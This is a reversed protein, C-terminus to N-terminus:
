GANEECLAYFPLSRPNDKSRQNSERDCTYWERHFIPHGNAPHCRHWYWWLQLCLWPVVWILCIRCPTSSRNMCYSSMRYVVWLVELTFDINSPYHQRKQRWQGDSDVRASASCDPPRSPSPAPSPRARHCYLYAAARLKITPHSNRVSPGDWVAGAWPFSYWTSSCTFVCTVRYVKFHAPTYLFYVTDKYM